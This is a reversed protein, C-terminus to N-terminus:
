HPGRDAVLGDRAREIANLRCNWAGHGFANHTLSKALTAVQDPNTYTAKTVSAQARRM